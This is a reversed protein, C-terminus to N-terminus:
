SLHPLTPLNSTWPSCESIRAEDIYFNRRCWSLNNVDRFRSCTDFIYGCAVFLDILIPAINFLMIDLLGSLSARRDRSAVANNIDPLRFYTLYSCAVLLDVLVPAIAFLRIDLLGYWSTGQDPSAVAGNVDPFRFRTNFLWLCGLSWRANNRHRVFHHWSTWKTFNGPRAM